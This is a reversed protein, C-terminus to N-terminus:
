LEDAFRAQCREFVLIGAACVLWAMALSPWLLAWEALPENLLAARYASLLGTMPNLFYLQLLVTHGFRNTVEALPYIVPTMFFWAMMFIGTMQQIDRFFVNLASVLCAVGLCLAVHTVLAPLLWVLPGPRIRSVALYVGVVLLSLLFNVLNALVMSAPLVLRPFAAKKILNANGVVAHAADGLCLALYQWVFIGTVLVALRIPFRMIRLFAGYIAILFVPGLLTWFFGLASNKYRIKLTRTMLTLLLERRAVLEKFVNPV